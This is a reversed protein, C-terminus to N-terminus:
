GNQAETQAERFQEPHIDMYNRFDKEMVLGENCHPTETTTDVYISIGAKKCKHCFGIDEGPWNNSWVKDYENTFWPPEIDEFVSRHILIAANGVEDVKTLGENWHTPIPRAGQETLNGMVPDFPAQRRFAMASVVRVEPFLVPWRALRQVIDVPHKHDIDLMLLHTFDSVLLDQAAFNRYLDIRMYPREIFAPYGQAINMFNWFVKDAYSIARELPIGVLVRPYEWSVIPYKELEALGAANEAVNSNLMTAKGVLWM